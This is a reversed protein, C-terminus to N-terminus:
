LCNHAVTLTQPDGVVDICTKNPVPEKEYLVNGTSSKVKLYLHASSDNNTIAYHSMAGPNAANVEDHSVNGSNPGYQIKVINKSSNNVLVEFPSAKLLPTASNVTTYGHGSFSAPTAAYTCLTATLLLGIATIKKINRM